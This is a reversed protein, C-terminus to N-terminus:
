DPGQAGILAGVAAGAGAGIGGFVIAARYGDSFVNCEAADCLAYGFWFGLVAGAAGGVIAGIKAGGKWDM